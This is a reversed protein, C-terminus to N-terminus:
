EHPELSPMCVGFPWPSFALSLALPIARLVKEEKSQGDDLYGQMETCTLASVKCPTLCRIKGLAKQSTYIAGLHLLEPSSLIPFPISRRFGPVPDAEQPSSIM